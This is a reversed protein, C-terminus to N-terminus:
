DNEEADEEDEDDWEGADDVEGVDVYAGRHPCDQISGLLTVPFQSTKGCEECVVDMMPQNCLTVRLLRRCPRITMNALLEKARTVDSRDVWVQQEEIGPLGAFINSVDENAFAEVGQEVLFIRVSEAEINEDATYVAVPDKLAM